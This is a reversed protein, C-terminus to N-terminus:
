FPYEFEEEHPKESIFSSREIENERVENERTTWPHVSGRSVPSRGGQGGTLLTYLSSSGHRHAIEVYGCRVLEDIARRVTSISLNLQKSLLAHSPFAGKPLTSYKHLAAFVVKANSSLDQHWLIEDPLQAFTWSSGIGKSM